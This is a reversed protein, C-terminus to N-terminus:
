PGPVIFMEAGTNATCYLSGHLESLFDHDDRARGTADPPRHRERERLAAGIDRGEVAVGRRELFGAGGAFRAAYPRAAVDSSTVCSACTMLVNSATTASKLRKSTSTFLAPIVRSARSRLAWSPAIWELIDSACHCATMSTFRVPTNRHPRSPASRMTWTPWPPTM